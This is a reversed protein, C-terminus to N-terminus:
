YLGRTSLLARTQVSTSIMCVCPKKKKTQKIKERGRIQAAINITNVASYKSQKRTGRLGHIVDRGAGFESHVRPSIAQGRTCLFFSIFVLLLPGRACMPKRQIEPDCNFICHVSLAAAFVSLFFLLYFCSWFLGQINEATLSTGSNSRDACRGCRGLPEVRAILSVLLHHPSSAPLCM